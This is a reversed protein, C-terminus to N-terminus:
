QRVERGASACRKEGEPGVVLGHSSRRAKAVSVLSSSRSRFASVCRGPVKATTAVISLKELRGSYADM